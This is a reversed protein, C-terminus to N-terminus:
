SQESIVFEEDRFAILLENKFFRANEHALFYSAYPSVVYPEVFNKSYAIQQELNINKQEENAITTSLISYNNYIKILSLMFFINAIFLSYKITNEYKDM